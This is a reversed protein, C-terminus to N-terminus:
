SLLLTTASPKADWQALAVDNYLLSSVLIAEGKVTRYLKFHM